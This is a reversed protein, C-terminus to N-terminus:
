RTPPRRTRQLLQKSKAITWESELLQEEVEAVQAQTGASVSGADVVRPQRAYRAYSTGVLRSGCWLEFNAALDSCAGLVQAAVVLATSDDEVDILDKRGVIVGRPSRFYLRYTHM